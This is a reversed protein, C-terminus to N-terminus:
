SREMIARALIARMEDMTVMDFSGPFGGDEADPVIWQVGAKACHEIIEEDSLAAKRSQAPRTYLKTGVPLAVSIVRNVGKCRPNDAGTVEAVPEPPAPVDDQQQAGLPGEVARQALPKTEPFNERRLLILQDELADIAEPCLFGMRIVMDQPQIPPANPDTDRSEGIKRDGERDKDTALTVLIEAGLEPDMPAATHNLVYQGTGFLAYGKWPPVLVWGERPQATSATEVCPTSHGDPQQLQSDLAQAELWTCVQDPSSVDPPVPMRPGALAADMRAADIHVAQAEPQRPVLRFDNPLGHGPKLLHLLRAAALDREDQTPRAVQAEPHPAAALMARYTSCYGPETDDSGRRRAEIAVRTANKDAAHFMEDTPEVPVLEWGPQVADRQMWPGCWEKHPYAYCTCVYTGDEGIRHRPNPILGEADRQMQAILAPLEAHKLAEFVALTEDALRNDKRSESDAQRWYTEGLNFARQVLAQATKLTDPRHLCEAEDMCVCQAGKAYTCFLTM